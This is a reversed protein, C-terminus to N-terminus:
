CKEDRLSELALLEEEYRKVLLRTEKMMHRIADRADSKWEPTEKWANRTRPEGTESASPTASEDVLSIESLQELLDVLISGSEDAMRAMVEIIPRFAAYEEDVLEALESGQTDIMGEDSNDSEDDKVELRSFNIGLLSPDVADGDKGTTGRENKEPTSTSSTDPSEQKVAPLVRGM